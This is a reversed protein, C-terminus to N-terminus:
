EQQPSRRILALAGKLLKYLARCEPKTLMAKAVSHKVASVEDQSLKLATGLSEVYKMLVRVYDSSCREGVVAETTLARSLEYLYVAVAHSVNLVNYDSPTVLTSILDCSALEARTLGVSERGFVLAVKSGRPVLLPIAWPSVAQRLYDDSAGAVATTCVSYDVGRLCEELSESVRVSDVLSAGGAAFSLVEPDRLDFKPRVVCIDGVGFNRCLRLIYGFNVRGEPEVLVLRLEM